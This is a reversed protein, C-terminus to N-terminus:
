PRGAMLPRANLLLPTEYPNGFAEPSAGAGQGKAAAAEPKVAKAGPVAAAAPAAATKKAPRAPLSGASAVTAIGFALGMFVATSRKM